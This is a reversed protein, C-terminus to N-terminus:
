GILARLAEGPREQRMLSEGILFRHVNSARMRAVDAPTAIGSETVIPVLPPIRPLLDLTTELSTAFTRLNRNNIGLLWGEGLDAGLVQDLEAGDHVEVLVDLQWARAAAHLAKLQLPALAAAILLVCDAGMARAEVIQWEDIIFDKRIVPLTCAARAQVLFANHGQFFKEDTLVSLCAAGGSAYERALWAPDFDERILGKSPSARKIEAIVGADGAAAKAALAAIFGRPADASRALDELAAWSYRKRLLRIEESKRALITDLIDSM